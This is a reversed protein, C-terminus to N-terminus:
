CGASGGAGGGSIAWLADAAGGAGGGSVTCLADAAGGAGGGSITCLADAGGGASGGSTPEAAGTGARGGGQDVATVAVAVGAVSEPLPSASAACAEPAGAAGGHAEPLM